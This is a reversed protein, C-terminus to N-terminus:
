RGRYFNFDPVAAAGVRSSSLSPEVMTETLYPAPALGFDAPIVRCDRCHSCSQRVQQELKERTLNDATSWDETVISNKAPPARLGVQARSFGVPLSVVPPHPETISSRHRSRRKVKVEKGKGRGRQLISASTASLPSAPHSNVNDM